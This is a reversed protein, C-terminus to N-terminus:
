SDTLETAELQYTGGRRTVRGPPIHYGLFLRGDGAAADLIARRNKVMLDPLADVPSYWDPHSFNLVDLLADGTYSGRDNGSAIEVVAHGPTHGPLPRVGVGSVIETEAGLRMVVGAEVLPPLQLRAPAALMDPLKALTEAATWFEWESDWVYHTARSFLPVRKGEGMETLGGIHDPHCHTLVVADIQDPSTGAANLADRLRGAPEGITQALEGMGTDVLVLKGASSVLLPRYPAVFLGREDLRDRLESRTAEPPVNAALMEPAYHAAGDSLLICEVTGIRFRFSQDAALAEARSASNAM